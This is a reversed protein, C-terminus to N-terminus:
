RTVRTAAPRAGAPVPRASSPLASATSPRKVSRWGASATPASDPPRTQNRSMPSWVGAATAASTSAMRVSHSARSGPFQFGHNGTMSKSRQVLQM